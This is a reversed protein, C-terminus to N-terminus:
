RRSTAAAKTAAALRSSLEEDKLADVIPSVATLLKRASVLDKAALQWEILQITGKAWAERHEANAPAAVSLLKRLFTMAELRKGIRDFAVIADLKNEEADVSDGSRMALTVAQECHRTAAAIDNQAVLASCWTKELKSRTLDDTDTLLTEAEVSFQVAEAHRNARFALVATNLLVLGRADGAIEPRLLLERYALLADDVKSLKTLISARDVKIQLDMIERCQGVDCIKKAADILRLAAEENGLTSAVTAELATIEASFTDAEGVRTATSRAMALWTQAAKTELQALCERAVGIYGRVRIQDSGFEDAYMSARQFAAISAERDGRMSMRTALQEYALALIGLERKATAEQIIALTPQDGDVSFDADGTATQMSNARLRHLLDRDRAIRAERFNTAVCGQADSLPDILILSSAVIEADAAELRSLTSTFMSVYESLCDRAMESVEPPAKCAQEAASTWQSVVSDLQGDVARFKAGDADAGSKAFASAIRDKADGDWVETLESTWPCRLPAAMRSSTAWMGTGAVAAFVTVAGTAIWRRRIIKRRALADAFADVSQWRNAPHLQLARRLIAITPRHWTNRARSVRPSPSNPSAAASSPVLITGPLAPGAEIARYRNMDAFPRAGFLIEWITVALAFQDAAPTAVEGLMQEPAMYAPTGVIAGEQTQSDTQSDSYGGKSELQDSSRDLSRALGFDGLVARGDSDILVNDPKIDRHVFGGAHVAAVGSALGVALAMRQGWSLNKEDLLQRLSGGPLLDMAVFPVGFLAGGDFITLVNPHRLKALAHAERQLRVVADDSARGRRLLKVAVNRQLQQDSARYVAGFAGRGIIAELRYRGFVHPLNTPEGAELSEGPPATSGDRTDALATPIDPSDGNITSDTDHQRSQCRACGAVHDALGGAPRGTLAWDRVAM